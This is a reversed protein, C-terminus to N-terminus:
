EDLWSDSTKSPKTGAIFGILLMIAALSFIAWRGTSFNMSRMAIDSESVGMELLLNPLASAYVGTWFYLVVLIFSAGALLYVLAGRRVYLFLNAGAAVLLVLVMFAAALNHLFSAM